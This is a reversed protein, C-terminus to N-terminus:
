KIRLQEDLPPYAFYGRVDFNREMLEIIEYNERKIISFGNKNLYKEKFKLYDKVTFDAYGWETHTEYYKRIKVLKLTGSVTELPLINFIPGTPTEQVIVGLEKAVEILHSYEENSQCFVCAYNVRANFEYTYKDKLEKTKEVIKQIFKLLEEKDM